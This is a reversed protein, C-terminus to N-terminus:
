LMWSCKKINMGRVGTKKGVGQGIVFNGTDEVHFAPVGIAGAAPQISTVPCEDREFKPVSMENADALVQTFM